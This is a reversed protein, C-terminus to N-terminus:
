SKRYLQATRYCVLYLLGTHHNYSRHHLGQLLSMCVEREGAEPPKDAAISLILGIRETNVFQIENLLDGIPKQRPLRKSLRSFGRRRLTQQILPEETIPWKDPESIQFLPDAICILSTEYSVGDM